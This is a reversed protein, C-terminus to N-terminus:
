EAHAKMIKFRFDKATTTPAVGIVYLTEGGEIERSLWVSGPTEILMGAADFWEFRYSFTVHSANQNRLEAQVKLVGGSATTQNLGVVSLVDNFRSDAIVRKDAIPDRVCGPTAREVTNVPTQCAALATLGAACSWRILRRMM